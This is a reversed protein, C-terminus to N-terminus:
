QKPHSGGVPVNGAGSINGWIPSPMGLLTIGLSAVGWRFSSAINVKIIVNVDCNWISIHLGQNSNYMSHWSILHSESMCWARTKVSEWVQTKVSEWWVIHYGHPIFITMSPNCGNIRKLVFSM